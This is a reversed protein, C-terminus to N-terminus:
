LNRWIYQLSLLYLSLLSIIHKCKTTEWFNYFLLSIFIDINNKGKHSMKNFIILYKDNRLNLRTCVGSFVNNGCFYSTNKNVMRIQLSSIVFDIRDDNRDDTLCQSQALRITTKGPSSDIM